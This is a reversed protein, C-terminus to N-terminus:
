CSTLSLSFVLRPICCGKKGALEIMKDSKQEVFERDTIIIGRGYYEEQFYFIVLTIMPQILIM